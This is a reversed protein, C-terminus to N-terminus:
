IYSRSERLLDNNRRIAIHMLAGGCGGHVVIRQKREVKWRDATLFECNIKVAAVLRGIAAQQQGSRANNRVTARVRMGHPGHAASGYPGQREGM